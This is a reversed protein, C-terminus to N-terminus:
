AFSSIHHQPADNVAAAVRFVHLFPFLSNAFAANKYQRWLDVIGLRGGQATKYVAPLSIERRQGGWVLRLFISLLNMKAIKM